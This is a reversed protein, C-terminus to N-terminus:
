HGISVSKSSKTDRPEGEHDLFTYELYFDDDAAPLPAWVKRVTPSSERLRVALSRPVWKPVAIEVGDHNRQVWKLTGTKGGLGATTLKVTFVVGLQDRQKATFPGGHLSPQEALFVSWLVDPEITELPEITATIPKPPPFVKEWLGLGDTIVGIIVSIGAAVGVIWKARKSLHPRWGGGPAEQVPQPESPAAGAEV